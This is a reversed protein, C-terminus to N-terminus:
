TKIDKGYNELGKRHSKSVSVLMGFLINNKIGQTQPTFLSYDWKEFSMKLLPKFPIQCFM